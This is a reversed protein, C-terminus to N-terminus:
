WKRVGGLRLVISKLASFAMNLVLVVFMIEFFGGVLYILFHTFGLFSDAVGFLGLMTM